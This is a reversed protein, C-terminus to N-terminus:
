KKFSNKTILGMTTVFYFFCLTPILLIAGDSLCVFLYIIAGFMYSNIVAKKLFLIIIPACFSFLFLLLGIVGLQKLISLYVIEVIASYNNIGFLSIESISQRIQTIRGGFRFDLIFESLSGYQFGKTLFFSGLLFFIIGLLFFTKILNVIKKRYYILLFFILGLWVTRSLTLILSIVVITIKLKSTTSSFFTPLLMLLCIGYINGNNYTSILKSISGRVNFKDYVEGVDSANITIYPIEVDYKFFFKFFFITIGYISVILMANSIKNKIYEQKLVSLFPSLYIYFLFPLFVFSVYFSILNGLTGDYGNILINVTFYIVFPLTSLYIIIQKLNIKNNEKTLLNRNLLLFLFGLYLYGWTIPIGAVKFGGKPIIVLLIIGLSFLIEIIREKKYKQPIPLNIM